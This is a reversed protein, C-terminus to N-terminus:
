HAAEQTRSRELAPKRANGFLPEDLVQDGDRAALQLHGLEGKRRLVRLVGNRAALQNQGAADQLRPCPLDEGVAQIGFAVGSIGAGHLQVSVVPAKIGAQDREVVGLVVQGIGLGRGQQQSGAVDPRLRGARAGCLLDREGSRKDRQGRSIRVAKFRQM